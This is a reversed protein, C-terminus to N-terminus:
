SKLQPAFRYVLYVAFMIYIIGVAISRLLFIWKMKEMQEATFLKIYWLSGDQKIGFPIRMTFETDTGTDLDPSTLNMGPDSNNKPPFPLNSGTSGGTYTGNGDDVGPQKMGPLMNDFGGTIVNGVNQATGVGVADKLNNIANQLDAIAAPSPTALKDMHGKLNDNLDTLKQKLDDNLQELENSLERFMDPWNIIFATIPPTQKGIWSPDSILGTDHDVQVIYHWVTQGNEFPKVIYSGSSTEATWTDFATFSTQKYTRVYLIIANGPTVGSWAIEIEGTRWDTEGLTPPPPPVPPPPPEDAAFVSNALIFFAFVATFLVRWKFGLMVKRRFAM